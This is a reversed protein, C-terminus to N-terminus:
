YNVILNYFFVYGKSNHKTKNQETSKVIIKEIIEISPVIKSSKDALTKVGIAEERVVVVEAKNLSDSIRHDM